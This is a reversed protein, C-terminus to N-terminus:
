NGINLNPPITQRNFALQFFIVLITFLILDLLRIYDFVRNCKLNGRIM